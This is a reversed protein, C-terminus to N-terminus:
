PLRFAKQNSCAQESLGSSQLIRAILFCILSYCHEILRELLITLGHHEHSAYLLHCSSQDHYSLLMVIGLLTILETMISLLM